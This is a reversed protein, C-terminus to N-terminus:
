PTQWSIKASFKFMHWMVGEDCHGQGQMGSFWLTQKRNIAFDLLTDADVKAHLKPLDV